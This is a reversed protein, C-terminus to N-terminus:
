SLYEGADSGIWIIRNDTIPSSFGITTFSTSSATAPVAPSSSSTFLCSRRSFSSAALTITFSRIFCAAADISTCDVPVSRTSTSFICRSFSSTSLTCGTNACSYRSQTKSSFFLIRVSSSNQPQSSPLPLVYPYVARVASTSRDPSKFRCLIHARDVVVRRFAVSAAAAAPSARSGPRAVESSDSLQM